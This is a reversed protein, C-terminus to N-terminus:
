LPRISREADGGEEEKMDKELVAMFEEWSRFGWAAAEAELEEQTPPPSETWDPLESSM